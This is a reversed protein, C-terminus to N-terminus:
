MAHKLVTAGGSESYGQAAPALTTGRLVFAAGVSGDGVNPIPSTIRRQIDRRAAKITTVATRAGARIAGVMGAGVAINVADVGAAIVRCGRELFCSAILLFNPIPKAVPKRVVVNFARPIPAIHTNDQELFQLNGTATLSVRLYIINSQAFPNTNQSAKVAASLWISGQLVSQHNNPTFFSHM